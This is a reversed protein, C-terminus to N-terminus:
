WWERPGRCPAWHRVAGPLDVEVPMVLGCEGRRVRMDSLPRLAGPCFRSRIRGGEANNEYRKSHTLEAASVPPTYSVNSARSRERRPCHRPLSAAGDRYATILNAIDCESLRERLSWPRTSPRPSHM